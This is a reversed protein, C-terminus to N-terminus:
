AASRDELHAFLIATQEATLRVGKGAIQALAVKSLVAMLAWPEPPDARVPEAARAAGAELVNELDALQRVLVAAERAEAASAAEARRIWEMLAAPPLGDADVGQGFVNGKRKAWNEAGLRDTPLGPLGILEAVPVFNSGGAERFRALAEAAAKQEVKERGLKDRYAALSIAPLATLLCEHSLQYDPSYRTENITWGEFRLRSRLDVVTTPVGPLGAVDRLDVWAGTPRLALIERAIAIRADADSVAVSNTRKAATKM